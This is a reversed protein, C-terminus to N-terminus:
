EAGGVRGAQRYTEPAFDLIQPRVPTLVLLPVRVHIGGLYVPLVGQPLLGYGSREVPHLLPRLLRRRTRPEPGRRRSSRAVPVVPRNWPRSCEPPLYATFSGCAARSHMASFTTSRRMAASQMSSVPPRNTVVGM